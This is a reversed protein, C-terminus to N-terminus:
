HSRKGKLPMADLATVERGGSRPACAVFLSPFFLLCACQGRVMLSLVLKKKEKKKEREELSEALSKQKRRGESNKETERERRSKEREVGAFSPRMTFSYM